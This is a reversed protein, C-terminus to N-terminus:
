KRLLENIAAASQEFTNKQATKLAEKPSLSIVNDLANVISAEDNIDVLFGNKGNRIIEVSSVVKDSSIVPLANAMAELTTHGFIDERSLTVFFDCASMIEFLDKKSKFDMIIINKMNNKKIIQEYTDKEQGAGVLLLTETRHKFLEILQINNKREIFQSANIFLPGSPLHWKERLKQKTSQSPVSKLIENSFYNGYPYHYIHEKYAGYYILYEDAKLCPSYYRYANSIFYTKLNRKFKSEKKIVGGNIQLVYPIDHKIMYRIARMEAVKSYGNMVIVDYENHHKKIFKKLEGSYSNELGFAGRKLFYVPFNYENESYFSDPRDKAKTREFVVQIPFLKNLENFIHVKYPAPHNFVFLAKM